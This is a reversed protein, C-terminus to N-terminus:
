TNNNKTPFLHTLTKVFHNFPELEEAPFYFDYKVKFDQILKLLEHIHRTISSSPHLGTYVEDGTTISDAYAHIADLFTQIGLLAEIKKIENSDERNIHAMTAVNETVYQDLRPNALLIMNLNSAEELRLLAYLLTRVETKSVDSLVLSDVQELVSQINSSREMRALLYAGTPLRFDYVHTVVAKYKEKLLWAIQCWILQEAMHKLRETNEKTKRDKLDFVDERTKLSIENVIPIVQFYFRLVSFEELYSMQGVLFRLKDELSSPANFISLNARVLAWIRQSHTRPELNPQDRPQDGYSQDDLNELHSFESDNTPTPHSSRKEVM